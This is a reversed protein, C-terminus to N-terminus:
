GRALQVARVRVASAAGSHTLSRALEPARTRLAAVAESFYKRMTGPALNLERAISAANFGDVYRMVLCARQLPPLSTIARYLNMREDTAATPNPSAPWAGDAVGADHVIAPRARPRRGGDIFSTLMSRKVCAHAANLPMDGRGKRFTRVLAGQVLDDAANRDGTLVYAYGFLASGRVRVLGDLWGLGEGATGGLV